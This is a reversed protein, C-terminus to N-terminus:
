LTIAENRNFKPTPVKAPIPRWPQQRPITQTAPRKQPRQALNKKNMVIGIGSFSSCLAQWKSLTKLTTQLDNLEYTERVNFNGIISTIRNGLGDVIDGRNEDGVPAIKGNLFAQLNLDIDLERSITELASCATEQGQFANQSATNIQEVVTSLKPLLKGLTTVAGQLGDRSVRHRTAESEYLRIIDRENKAKSLDDQLIDLAADFAGVDLTADQVAIRTKGQDDPSGNLISKAAARHRSVLIEDAAKKKDTVSQIQSKINRIENEIHRTKRMTQGWYKTPIIDRHQYFAPGPYLDPGAWVHDRAADPVV